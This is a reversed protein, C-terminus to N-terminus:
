KAKRLKKLDKADIDGDDDVDMEVRQEPSLDEQEDMEEEDEKPEVEVEVEDKAEVSVEKDGVDVTVETEDEKEDEMEGETLITKWIPLEMSDNEFLREKWSKIKKESEVQARSKIMEVAMEYAEDKPSDKYFLDLYKIAAEPRGGTQALAIDSQRKATNQAREEPSLEPRQKRKSRRRGRFSKPSKPTSQPLGEDSAGRDNSYDKSPSEDGYFRPGTYRRKKVNIKRDDGYENMQIDENINLDNSEFFKKFISM